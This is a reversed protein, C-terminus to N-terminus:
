GDGDIAQATKRAMQYYAAMVLYGCCLVEGREGCAVVRCTTPDIIEESHPLPVGVTPSKLAFSDDQRTLTIAASAETQGFVIPANAGMRESVQEMLSVPVPSGGSVVGKLSSLDFSAFDLHQLLAILMTCVSGFHSCRESSIIQLTKLPDFAILPHFAAGVSLTALIVLVCSGAHFFPMATCLHDGPQIGWRLAFIRGNNLGATPYCSYVLAEQEPRESACQDLFQGPTVTLRPRGSRCAM